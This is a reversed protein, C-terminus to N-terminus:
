IPPLTLEDVIRFAGNRASQEFMDPAVAMEVTVLRYAQARM